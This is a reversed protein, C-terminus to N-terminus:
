MSISTTWCHSKGVQLLEQERADTANAQIVKLMATTLRSVVLGDKGNQLLTRLATRMLRSAKGARGFEAGNERTRQFAPDSKIREGDVGGKERALHGFKNKYFSLSGITGKLTIIGTQKAMINTKLFFLYSCFL